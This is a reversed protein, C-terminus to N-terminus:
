KKKPGFQMLKEIRAMESQADFRKLAETASSLQALDKFSMADRELLKKLQNAQVTSSFIQDVSNEKRMKTVQAQLKDITARSARDQQKLETLEQIIAEMSELSEDRERSAQAIQLQYDQISAALGTVFSGMEDASGAMRNFITLFYGVLENNSFNPYRIKHDIESWGEEFITRIQVEVYLKRNTPQSSIVHHVSRYGAPHVKVELGHNRYRQVLDEPDGNRIYAIPKEVPSWTSAIAENIEFCDDKFLHLARIGILDTVIEYYNDARVDGYKEEGAAKKRIIKELLHEPQKVRWRVSHVGPINQIINVYLAASESFVKSQAAHDARIALLEDWDCGSKQWTEEDIRNRALFPALEETM